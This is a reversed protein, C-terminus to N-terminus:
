SSVGVELVEVGVVPCGKRLVCVVSSIKAESPIAGTPPIHNTFYKQLRSEYDDKKTGEFLHAGDHDKQLPTKRSALPNKGHLM